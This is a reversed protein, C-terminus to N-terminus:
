VLGAWSAGHAEFRARLGDSVDAPLPGAELHRVNEELHALRKTGVIVSAVGPAFASFRLAKHAKVAAAGLARAQAESVRAPYFYQTTGATYKAAYDYFEHAPVIEIAGLAEDDLVGVAIEKGKIFQEVIVDGQYKAADLCAPGLEAESKVIHVGVSSGEGAPKVVVPFGFPLDCAGIKAADVRPFIRHKAQPLGQMEFIAKSVVKDMGMASALVGSGTYPIALSELLGQICGDEGWRGHLAIFAVEIRQTRLQAAVETDVDILKVAYGKSAIADACGKGTKLSVERESSRGGYLVAVNKDTWKGM